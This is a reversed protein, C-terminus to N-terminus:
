SILQLFNVFNCFLHHFSTRVNGQSLRAPTSSGVLASTKKDVIFVKKETDNYTASLFNSLSSYSIDAAIMGTYVNSGNVNKYLPKGYNLVPYIYTDSAMVYPNSWSSIQLIKRNLNRRTLCVDSLTQNNLHYYENIRGQFLGNELCIYLNVMHPFVKLVSIMNDSVQNSDNVAGQKMEFEFTSQLVAAEIQATFSTIMDTVRGSTEYKYKVNQSNASYLAIVFLTFQLM